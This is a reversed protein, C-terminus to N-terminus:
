NPESQERSQLERYRRTAANALGALWREYYPGQRSAIQHASDLQAQAGCDACKGTLSM